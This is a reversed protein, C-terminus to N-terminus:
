SQVAKARLAAACLALAPTKGRGCAWDESSSDIESLRSLDCSFRAKNQHSRLEWATWGDPVLTMAADISALYQPPQVVKPEPQLEHLMVNIEAVRPTEIEVLSEIEDILKMLDM